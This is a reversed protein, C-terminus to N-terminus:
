GLLRGTKTQGMVRDSGRWAPTSLTRVPDAFQRINKGQEASFGAAIACKVLTARTKLAIASCLDLIDNEKAIGSRRGPRLHSSALVHVVITKGPQRAGLM